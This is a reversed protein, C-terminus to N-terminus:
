DYVVRNRGEDKARYLAADARALITDVTCDTKWEAVGISVSIDISSDRTTIPHASVGDCLRQYLSQEPHGTSDPAIVLFEEGGYRGMCDYDRLNEQICQVFGCLMDDGVQHGYTDNVRKFHDIDLMAVSLCGSTRKARSIEVEVANLIAARNFIGTLPDHMALHAMEEKAKNLSAQLDIMRKGVNIRALLEANDYPKSIYDNGGAELGRVIDSKETKSTLIILYPPESTEMKRIRRCVELGDLLPMNWDLIALKPADPKQMAVWAADGDKVAVPDYGWKTLVVTLIKRSVLDDEAILIQV